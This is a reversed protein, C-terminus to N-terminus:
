WHHLRSVQDWDQSADRSGNKQLRPRPRSPRQDWRRRSSRPRSSKSDLSQM